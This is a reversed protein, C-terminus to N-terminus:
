DKMNFRMESFTPSDVDLDFSYDKLNPDVKRLFDM